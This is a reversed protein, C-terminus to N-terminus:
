PGARVQLADAQLLAQMADSSPYARLEGLAWIANSIDQATAHGVTSALREACKYLLQRSPAAGMIAFGYLMDSLARPAAQSPTNLFHGCIADLMNCDLAKQRKGLISLTNDVAQAGAGHLLQPLLREAAALIPRDGQHQLEALGVLCMRLDDLKWAQPRTQMSAATTSLLQPLWAPKIRLTGCASVASSLQRADFHPHLKKVAALLLPWAAHRAFGYPLGHATRPSLKVASQLAAAVHNHNFQQHRSQVLDLVAEISDASSLRGTLEGTIKSRRPQQSKQLRHRGPSRSAQSAHVTQQRPQAQM